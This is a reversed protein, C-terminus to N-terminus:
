AGEAPCEVFEKFLSARDFQKPSWWAVHGTREDTLKTKGAGQVFEGVAVFSGLHPSLSQRHLAHELKAYVSVAKRRCESGVQIGLEEYSKLDDPGPPKATVIRFVPGSCDAADSPPCNKPWDTPFLM